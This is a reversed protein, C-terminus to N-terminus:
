VLVPIFFLTFWKKVSRLHWYVDNNCNFCHVPIAEGADKDTTRGWGFIFYM